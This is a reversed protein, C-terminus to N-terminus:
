SKGQSRKLPFGSKEWQIMGGDLSSVNTYGQRVLEEAAIDSMRGSRCYVVIKASKDAPYKGLKEMTQDYPIFADTLSIEGEYPVHVNVLFFDKKKLLANLTVATINLYSGGDVSVPTGEGAGILAEAWIFALDKGGDGRLTVTLLATSRLTGSPFSLTGTLHHGGGGGTWATAPITTGSPGRAAAIKAVDLPLSGSHTDMVISFDLTSAKEDRPNLPLATAAVGGTEPVREMGMAFGSGAAVTTLVIGLFLAIGRFASKKVLDGWVLGRREGNNAKISM